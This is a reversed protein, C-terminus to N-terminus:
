VSVTETHNLNIGMLSLVFPSRVHSKVSFLVFIVASDVKMCGFHIDADDIMNSFSNKMPVHLGSRIDKQSGNFRKPIIKDNRCFTHKGPVPQSIGAFVFVYGKDKAMSEIHTSNMATFTFIVPDIGM